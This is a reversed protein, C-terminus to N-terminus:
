RAGAHPRAASRRQDREAVRQHDDADHHGGSGNSNATPASTPGRAVDVPRVRHDHAASPANAPSASLKSSRGDSPGAAARASATGASDAIARGRRLPTGGGRCCSCRSRASRRRPAATRAPSRRAHQAHRQAAVHRHAHERRDSHATATGRAPSPAEALGVVRHGRDGVPQRQHQARQQDPARAPRPRRATCTASTRRAVGVAQERARQLPRARMRVQAAVGARQDIGVAGFRRRQHHEGHAQERDSPTTRAARPAAPAAAARQQEVVVHVIRHRRQAIREGVAQHRRQGREAIGDTSPGAAATANSHSSHRRRQIAAACQSAASANPRASVARSSAAISM